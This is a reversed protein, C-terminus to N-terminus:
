ITQKCVKIYKEGFKFLLVVDDAYLNSIAGNSNIQTSNAV